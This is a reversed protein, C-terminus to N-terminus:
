SDNKASIAVGPDAAAITEVAQIHNVGQSVLAANAHPFTIRRSSIGRTHRVKGISITLKAGDSTRPRRRSM